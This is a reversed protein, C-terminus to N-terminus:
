ELSDANVLEMWAIFYVADDYHEFAVVHRKRAKNIYLIHSAEFPSDKLLLWTRIEQPVIVDYKMEICFKYQAYAKFHAKM